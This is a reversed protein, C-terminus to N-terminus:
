SQRAGIRFKSLLWILRLAKRFAPPLVSNIARVVDTPRGRTSSACCCDSEDSSSPTSQNLGIIRLSVM